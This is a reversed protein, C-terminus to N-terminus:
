AEVERKYTARTVVYALSDCKRCRAAPSPDGATLACTGIPRAITIPGSWDCSGCAVHAGPDIWVEAVTYGAEIKAMSNM